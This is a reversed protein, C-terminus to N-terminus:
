DHFTTFNGKTIQTPVWDIEAWNMQMQKIMIDKQTIKAM